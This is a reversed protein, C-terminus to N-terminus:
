IHVDKVINITIRNEEIPVDGQHIQHTTAKMTPICFKAFEIYYRVRQEPTLKQWDDQIQEFTFGVFDAFSERVKALAITSKNLSGKPRGSRNINADEPKFM